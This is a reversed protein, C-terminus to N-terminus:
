LNYYKCVKELSKKVVYKLTRNNSTNIDSKKLLVFYVPRVIQTIREEYKERRKVFDEKSVEYYRFLDLVQSYLVKFAFNRDQKNQVTWKYIKEGNPKPYPELAVVKGEIAKLPKKITKKKPAGCGECPDAGQENFHGCEKCEWFNAIDSKRGKKKGIGENFIKTWDRAESWKGHESINNGFDLVTFSDKYIVDTKRGGRGVIQLWLSLSKTARYVIICEVDTVDFGTTFVNVNSLVIDREQKFRDVIKKRESAKNNVSDYSLINVGQKKFYETVSASTKSNSCFIMTKKGKAHNAYAQYLLAIQDHEAYVKTLSNETYEGKSDTELKDFNKPTFVFNRDQILKGRKILEEIDVGEVITDYIQSMSWPSTWEDCEQGCCTELNETGCVDCKYFKNRKLRCPTATCGLIYGNYHSLLKDFEGRHCEDIILLGIDDPTIIGKQIRRFVTEVMGVYVSANPSPKKRSSTIKDVNVGISLLTSYTQEVLETRNVLIHVKKKANQNYRKALYSFTFTKGAGTPLAVLVRKYEKFAAVVQAVAEKQYDYLSM